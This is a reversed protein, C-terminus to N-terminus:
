PPEPLTARLQSLKRAMTAVSFDKRSSSVM